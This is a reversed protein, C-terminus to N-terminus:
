NSFDNSFDQECQDLESQTDAQDVCDQLNNFGDSNVVLVGIVIFAVAIVFGLISLVIGTIAMGRGGATGKKAKSSAVFGLIAGILGLIIGGFVTWCFLLALIGLVLAAIALGKPQNAPAGSQGYPQGGPPQTGYPSDPPPTNYDSM